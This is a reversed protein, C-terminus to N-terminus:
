NAEKGPKVVEELIGFGKTVCYELLGEKDKLSKATIEVQEGDVRAKSKAVVLKYTKKDFKFTPLPQLEAVKDDSAAVAENLETIIGDKGELDAKLAKNEAELAAIQQEPTLKEKSETM